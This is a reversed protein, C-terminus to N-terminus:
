TTGKNGAKERLPKKRSKEFPLIGGPSSWAIVQDMMDDRSAFRCEDYCGIPMVATQACCMTCFSCPNDPSNAVALQDLLDPNALLPRAMAVMDCKGAELAGNIVDKDQFGGNAIVPINVARRIAAAHDANAAPEFKWGIGFLLDRIRAPFLNFLIARLEAKGSLYRTANVFSKFGDGPYRGPSGKPNPFGFGCDIHLYDVGLAELKRAYYTTEALDNGVFYHRPPWVPPWRINVPLYNFDKAALRIGFLFDPGVEARVETVIQELLRFRKDVSGGYEDTRRNTGPNLFQHILYGKAATIEVGDCGAEKVRRAAQKFNDITQAIQESNMAATRNRYGYLVDFYSSATLGDDPQSRLSTHTAGGTDGLQIIYRCEHTKRSGQKIERVADRYPEVFRDDYITPYELPSMRTKNVSITASIIGAVGGAAFAKEFHIWAPSVAGDYYAMRGGISSRLVRNGFEVNKIRFPEFLM